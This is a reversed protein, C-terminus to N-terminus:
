SLGDDCGHYIAKYHCPRDCDPNYECEEEEEPFPYGGGTIPPEGSDGCDPVQVYTGDPILTNCGCFPWDFFTMQPWM